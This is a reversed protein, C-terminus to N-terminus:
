TLLAMKPIIEQITKIIFDIRDQATEEPKDLQEGNKSFGIIDAFPELTDIVIDTAELGYIGANIAHEGDKIYGGLFPFFKFTRIPGYSSKLDNVASKTVQLESKIKELDQEQVANSLIVLSDQVLIAKKYFRWSVIGVALIFVLFFATVAILLKQWKKRPVLKIKLRIRKKQKELPKIKPILISGEEQHEPTNMQIEHFDAEPNNEM